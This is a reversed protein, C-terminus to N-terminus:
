PRKMEAIDRYTKFRKQKKASRSQYWVGLLFFLLFVAAAAWWARYVAGYVTGSLVASGLFSTLVVRKKVLVARLHVRELWYDGIDFSISILALGLGSVVMSLWFVLITSDTIGEFLVTTGWILCAGAMFCVLPRFYRSGKLCLLIGAAVLIITLICFLLDGSFLITGEWPPIRFIFRDM